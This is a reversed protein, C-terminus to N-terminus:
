TNAQDETSCTSVGRFVQTASSEDYTSIVSPELKCDWGANTLARKVHPSRRCQIRLENLMAQLVATINRYAICDVQVVCIEEGRPSFKTRLCRLALRQLLASKGSGTPGVVVFPHQTTGLQIQQKIDRVANSFERIRLSLLKSVRTNQEVDIYTEEFHKVAVPSNCEKFWEDMLIDLLPYLPSQSPPKSAEPHSQNPRRQARRSNTNPENSEDLAFKQVLALINNPCDKPYVHLPPEEAIVEFKFIKSTAPPLGLRIKKAQNKLKGVTWSIFDSRSKRSLSQPFYFQLNILPYDSEVRYVYHHRFQHAKAVDPLNEFHPHGSDILSRHRCLDMEDALLLIKGLIYGRLGDNSSEMLNECAALHERSGHARCVLPLIQELEPGFSKYLPELAERKEELLEDIASVHWKRIGDIIELTYGNSLDFEQPIRAMGLDHLYCASTLAITEPTTLRGVLRNARNAIDLSYQLVADSHKPGHDTFWFTTAERFSDECVAIATRKLLETYEARKNAPFYENSLETLLLAREKIM